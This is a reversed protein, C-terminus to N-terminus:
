EFILVNKNYDIRVSGFQSLATQGLLLPAKLNDVVSAKINYLVANGIQLKKLNIVTGVSVDGNADQFQEQGIIDNQTLDGQKYLFTAEVSSMSISSAGSDFIFKMPVDDVMVPIIIVGSEKTFPVETKGRTKIKRQTNQDRIENNVTPNSPQNELGRQHRIRYHCSSFSLLMTLLIYLAIKRNM